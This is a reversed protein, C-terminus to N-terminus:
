EDKAGAAVLRKAEKAADDEALGDELFLKVAVRKEEQSLELDGEGEGSADNEPRNGESAERDSDEDGGQELNLKPSADVLRKVVDSATLEAGKGDQSLMLVPQGEDALMVAEAEKLVSPAKGEDEWAKIQDAVKRERDVQAYSQNQERMSTIEEASSFGLEKLYAEKEEDTVTEGGRDTADSSIAEQSLSLIERGESLQKAGFPGMGNLWPSNTLAVHGLVAGYKKGSEKHIYDFVIGASTNAITGRKVKDLVEPETFRHGAQLEWIGDDSKAMRLDEVFGTNELVSDGHSTPITVHEIAGGQFNSLLESMSVVLQEPNSKGDKVVRLAKKLPEQKPGPSYMWEGERLVTKWVLDGDVAAEEGSALFLEALVESMSVGGTLKASFGNSVHDAQVSADWRSCYGADFFRCTGCSRAPDTALAYNAEAPPPPKDQMGSENIPVGSGGDIYDELAIMAQIDSDADESALWEMFEEPIELSITEESFNKKMGKEAGKSRWKTSHYILDKIVACIANTRPGFRKRNDRVCARFPHPKKAYYKLLPRLKHMDRPSVNATGKSFGNSLAITLFEDLQSDSLEIEVSM